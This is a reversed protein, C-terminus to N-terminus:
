RSRPSSFQVVLRTGAPFAKGQRVVCKQGEISVKLLGEKWTWDVMGARTPLGRVSLASDLWAEPVGAGIIIAPEDGSADVHALMDLQLLLVEASTWYHPQSSAPAVWGRIREWGGFANGENRDEWWTFLGPSAQNSWFWRLTQWARDARGLFLDQHAAAVEFYTWLPRERFGGTEDRLKSWRRDLGQRFGPFAPDATWTPWIGTAYTRENERAESPYARRWAARLEDARARWRAAEEGSGLRRAIAAAARLGAQSVATVYLAPRHFDMRGQILGDRAPEAVLDIDPHGRWRPVIENAVQVRIPEAASALKLVWEAKRRVHPWIARDYEPSSLRSAVEELAWLGLGPADAEAGFGGYFDNEALFLSLERAVDLHGAAALASIIYAGTRQWPVPVNVPDSSRTERGVLSMLLHATQADLCQEFTEDPIDIQVLARTTVFPIRLKPQPSREREILAVAKRSPLVLRAFGWGSEGEWRDLGTGAMAWGRIGEEGCHVEAPAPDLTIKWEGNVLLRAGNWDLSTVAGGAPGVSRIALMAAGEARVDLELRSGGGEVRSWQAVYDDTETIISPLGIPDGWSLRQRPPAGRPRESTSLLSGDSGGVWISVGFTGPAPSFCGGPEHYSKEEATSGPMGLAVHGDGSPWPDAPREAMASLVRHRPTGHHKLFEAARTFGQANNVMALVAVLGAAGVVASRARTLAGLAALIVLLPGFHCSYLFTEEGYLVHLALQGAILAALVIRFRPSVPSRLAAIAGFGLLLTWLAIGPTGWLSGSGAAARQTVLIPWDPNGKRDSTDFEPMFVSHYFFSRAVCLPGGSEPHLIFKSEEAADPLLGSRPFYHTQFVALLAIVLTGTLVAAAARRPRLYVLAAALGAMGNTITFALSSAVGAAFSLVGLRTRGAAAAVLLAGLMGISGFAYTEPVTHWFVAFASSAALATFVVADLRRLAVLRLVLYVAAIWAAAAAAMVLRVATEPDTGTAKRAAMVLGYGTLSFIPHVASRYHNSGRSTMNAYVRGVDGEFWVDVAPWDLIVPDLVRSAFFAAPAAGCALVIVIAGDLWLRRPPPAVSPMRPAIRQPLQRDRPPASLTTENM